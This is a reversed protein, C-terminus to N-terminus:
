QKASALSPVFASELVLVSGHRIHFHVLVDDDLAVVALSASRENVVIQLRERAVNLFM